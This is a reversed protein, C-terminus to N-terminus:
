RFHPSLSIGSHGNRTRASLRLLDRESRRGRFLSRVSCGLTSPNHRCRPNPPPQPIESNQLHLSRSDLSPFSQSRMAPCFLFTSHFIGEKHETWPPQQWHDNYAPQSQSYGPPIQGWGGPTNWPNMSPPLVPLCQLQTNPGGSAYIVSISLRPPVLSRWGLNKWFMEKLRFVYALSLVGIRTITPLDNSRM